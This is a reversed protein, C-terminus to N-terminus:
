EYWYDYPLVKKISFFLDFLFFFRVAKKQHKSKQPFNSECLKKGQNSRGIHSTLNGSRLAFFPRTLVCQDVRQAAVSISSQRFPNGDKSPLSVTKSACAWLKTLSDRQQLMPTSSKIIKITKPLKPQFFVCSFLFSCFLRKLHLFQRGSWKM